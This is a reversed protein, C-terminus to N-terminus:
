IKLVMINNNINNELGLNSLLNINFLKGAFEVEDSNVFRLDLIRFFTNNQNAILYNLMMLNMLLINTEFKLLQIPFTLNNRFIYPIYFFSITTKTIYDKISDYKFRFVKEM